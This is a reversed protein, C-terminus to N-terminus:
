HYNKKNEKISPVYKLEFADLISYAHGSMIGTNEGRLEIFGETEGEASCGM